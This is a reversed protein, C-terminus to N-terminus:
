RDESQDEAVVAFILDSDGLSFAWEDSDFDKRRSVEVEVDTDPEMIVAAVNTNNTTPAIWEGDVPVMDFRMVFMAVVALIENSAFHRGPCLTTGGGFARFAAPKPRTAGPTKSLETKLFRRPNFHDVSTGWISSDTHIVRGPMQIMAGKKLLWHDDLLTDETVERVSTGMSRYRLVEQFTSALLPCSSKLSTIDLSRTTGTAGSKITVIREIEERLDNILGTTAFVHFLMWFVAPNTNVLIAICNGVEYRAIDGIEVCNRSALEFRTKTLVSAKEHYSKRLYEGFAEAVKERGTMAKRAVLKPMVGIVLAM